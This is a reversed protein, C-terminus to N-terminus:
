AQTWWAFDRDLWRGSRCFVTGRFLCQFNLNKLREAGSWHICTPLLLELMDVLEEMSKAYTDDSYRINILREVAGIQFGHDKIKTEMETIRTGPRRQFSFPQDCWRTPCWTWYWCIERPFADKKTGICIGCYLAILNQCMNSNCNCHRLFPNLNLAILRRRRILTQFGFPAIGRKIYLVRNEGARFTSIHKLYIRTRGNLSRRM